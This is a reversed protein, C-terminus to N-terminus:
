GMKGELEKLLAYVDKSSATKDTKTFQEVMWREEVKKYKQGRYVVNHFTTPYRYFANGLTSVARVLITHAVFSDEGFECQIDAEIQGSKFDARLIKVESFDNRGDVINGIKSLQKNVFTAEMGDAIETASKKAKTTLDKLVPLKNSDESFYGSVPVINNLRMRKEYRRMALWVIESDSKKKWQEIIKQKEKEVREPSLRLGGWDSELERIEMQITDELFTRHDEAKKQAFEELKNADDEIEKKFYDVIDQHLNSCVKKLAAEISAITAKSVSNAPGRWKGTYKVTSPDVFTIDTGVVYYKKKARDYDKHRIGILGDKFEAVTGSIVGHTPHKFEVKEGIAFGSATDRVEKNRDRPLEKIKEAIEAFAPAVKEFFLKAYENKSKKKVMIRSGIEADTLDKESTPLKDLFKFKAEYWLSNLKSQLKERDPESRVADPVEFKDLDPALHKLLDSPLNVPAEKHSAIYSEIEKNLKKYFKKKETPLELSETAEDWSEEIKFMVKDGVKFYGVSRWYAQNRDYDTPEVDQGYNRLRNLKKLYEEPAGKEKVAGHAAILMGESTNIMLTESVSEFSPFLRKLDQEVEQRLPYNDWKWFKKLTGSTKVRKELNHIEALIKM